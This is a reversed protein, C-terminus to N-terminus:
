RGGSIPHRLRRLVRRLGHPSRKREARAEARLDAREEAMHSNRQTDKMLEKYPLRGPDGISV